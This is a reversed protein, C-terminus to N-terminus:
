CEASMNCDPIQVEWKNEQTQRKLRITWNDAAVEACHAITMAIPCSLDLGLPGYTVAPSLFVESGEESVSDEQIVLSYASGARGM